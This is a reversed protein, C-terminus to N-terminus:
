DDIEYDIVEEPQAIVIDRYGAMRNVAPILTKTEAYKIGGSRFNFL